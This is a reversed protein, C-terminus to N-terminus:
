MYRSTHQHAPVSAPVPRSETHQQLCGCTFALAMEASLEQFFVLFAFLSHVCPLPRNMVCNTAYKQACAALM